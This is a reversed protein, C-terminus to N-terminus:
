HWSRRDPKFRSNCGRNVNLHQVLGTFSLASDVIDFQWVGMAPQWKFDNLSGPGDTPISGPMVSAPVSEDDYIFVFDTPYPKGTVLEALTHNNLVVADRNHSLQGWLDGVEEHHIISTATVKRVTDYPMGTYIGFVSVGGPNAASGDPIIAPMPMMLLNGEDTFGNANDTSLGVLGFEAAMQDESKVGIYFVEDKGVKADDFTIYETGGRGTSRFAADLVAPELNTLNSDRSVYLDIDAERHRPTSLNPSMFTIFAM